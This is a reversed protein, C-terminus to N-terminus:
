NLYLYNNVLPIVVSKTGVNRKRKQLKVKVDKKINAKVQHKILVSFQSFPFKM